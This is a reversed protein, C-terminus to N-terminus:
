STHCCPVAESQFAARLTGPRNSPKTGFGPVSAIGMCSPWLDELNLDHGSQPYMIEVLAAFQELQPLGWSTWITQGSQLLVKVAFACVQGCQPAGLSAGGDIDSKGVGDTGESECRLLASPQSATAKAQQIAPQPRARVTIEAAKSIMVCESTHATTMDNEAKTTGATALMEADKTGVSVRKRVRENKLKPKAM